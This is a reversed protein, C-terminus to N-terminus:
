LMIPVQFAFFQAVRVIGGILPDDCLARGCNEIGASAKGGILRETVLSLYAAYVLPLIFLGAFMLLFPAIFLYGVSPRATTTRRRTRRSVSVHPASQEETSM